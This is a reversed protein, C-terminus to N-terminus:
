DLVNRCISKVQGDMKMVSDFHAGINRVEKVAKINEEGVKISTTNIETLKHPTGFIIFTLKMTM